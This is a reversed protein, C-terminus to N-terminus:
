YYIYIYLSINKYNTNSTPNLVPSLLMAVDGPRRPYNSDIFVYGGSIENNDFSSFDRAPGTFINQSGKKQFLFLYLTFLNTFM